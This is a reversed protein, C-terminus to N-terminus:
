NKNVDDEARKRSNDLLSKWPADWGVTQLTEMSTNEMPMQPQVAGPLPSVELMLVPM